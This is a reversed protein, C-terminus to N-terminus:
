PISESCLVGKSMHHKTHILFCLGALPTCGQQVCLGTVLAEREMVKNGGEPGALGEQNM